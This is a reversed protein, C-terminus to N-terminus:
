KVRWKEILADLEPGAEPPLGLVDRALRSLNGRGKGVGKGGERGAALALARAADMDFNYGLTLQHTSKYYDKRTM